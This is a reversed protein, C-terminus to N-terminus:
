KIDEPGNREIRHIDEKLFRDLDQDGRARSIRNAGEHIMESSRTVPGVAEKDPNTKFERDLVARDHEGYIMAQFGEKMVGETVGENNIPQHFTGGKALIEYLKAIYYDTQHIDRIRMEERVASWALTRRKLEEHIEALAEPPCAKTQTEFLLLQVEVNSKIDDFTKHRQDPIYIESKPMNHQMKFQALERQEYEELMTIVNGFVGYLMQKSAEVSRQLQQQKQAHAGAHYHQSAGHWREDDYMSGKHRDMSGDTDMQEFNNREKSQRKPTKKSGSKKSM